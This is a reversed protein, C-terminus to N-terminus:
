LVIHPFLNILKLLKLVDSSDDSNPVLNVWKEIWPGTVIVFDLEMRNCSENSIRGLTKKGIM